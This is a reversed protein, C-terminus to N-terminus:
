RADLKLLTHPKLVSWLVEVSPKNKCFVNMFLLWRFGRRYCKYPLLHHHQPIHACLRNVYKMNRHCWIYALSEIFFYWKYYTAHNPKQGYAPKTRQHLAYKPGKPSPHYFKYLANTIYHPISTDAYKESYNWDLNLGCYKKRDLWSVDPLIETPVQTPSRRRTQPLIQYWLKRYRPYVNTRQDRVEM